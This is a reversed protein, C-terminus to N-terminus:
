LGSKPHPRSFSIASRTTSYFIKTKDSSLQFEFDVTGQRIWSYINSSGGDAWFLRDVAM